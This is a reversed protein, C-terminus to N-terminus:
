SAPLLNELLTDLSRCQRCVITGDKDVLILSPVGRISYAKAATAKKDLLVKYKIDHRAAYSRVKKGPEQIDINFIVFGRDSYERRLENLYPPMKRCHTCWTTSFVLLVVKERYDALRVKEGDLDKLVFDPALERIRPGWANQEQSCFAPSSTIIMVFVLCMMSFILLVGYERRSILAM